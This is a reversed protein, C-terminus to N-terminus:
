FFNEQLETLSLYFNSLDKKGKKIIDDVEKAQSLAAKENVLLFAFIEKNKQNTKEELELLYNEFRM